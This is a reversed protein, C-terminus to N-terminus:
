AFEEEMERFLAGDLARIDSFPIAMGDTLVVAGQCLDIKNITGAVSQYCGGEKKSDPLFYTIAVAPSEKLHEQLLQLKRDLDAQSQEDLEVKEDTQRAAEEIKKEYGVLAAFPSFQAARSEESMQPHASSVPHPLNLIADYRHPDNRNM